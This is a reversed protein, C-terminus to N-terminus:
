MELPLKQLLEDEISMQLIPVADDLFDVPEQLIEQRVCEKVIEGAIMDILVTVPYQRSQGDEAIIQAIGDASSGLWTFVAQVNGLIELDKMGYHAWKYFPMYKENLLYIASIANKMFLNLAFCAAVVDNRQLCRNYNYQGAQAMVAFRSALKKLKVERPYFNQLNKRIQMFEDQGEHFLAGNTVMALREESLQYWQFLSEPEKELGLNKFYFDRTRLIGVRGEGHGSVMREMGMFERPLDAYLKELKRGYQEYLVDDLFVCFGPGFDHDKSIEDDYGFCESGQGCLGISVKSFDTELIKRIDGEYKQYYQRSLELGKM